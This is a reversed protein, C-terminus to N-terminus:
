SAGRFFAGDYQFEFDPYDQKLREICEQLVKFATKNGQAKKGLGHMRRLWYLMRLESQQPKPWDTIHALEMRVQSRMDTLRM